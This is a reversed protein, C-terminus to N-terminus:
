LNLTHLKKWYKLHQVETVKQLRENLLMSPTFIDKGDM